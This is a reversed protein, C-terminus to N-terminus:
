SRQREARELHARDSRRRDVRDAARRPSFAANLVKNGTGGSCACAGNGSAAEYLEISNDAGAALVRAGEPGLRVDLIAGGVDQTLEQGTNADWLHM